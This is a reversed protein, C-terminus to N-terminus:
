LDCSTPKHVVVGEIFNDALLKRGANQKKVRKEPGRNSNAKFSVKASNRQTGRRDPFSPLASVLVLMLSQCTNRLPGFYNRRSRTYELLEIDVYETRTRVGVTLFVSELSFDLPYNGIDTKQTLSTLTM